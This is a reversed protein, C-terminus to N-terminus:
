RESRMDNEPEDQGEGEGKGEEGPLSADGFAVKGSVEGSCMTKAPVSVYMAGVREQSSYFALLTCACDM